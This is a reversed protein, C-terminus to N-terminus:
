KHLKYVRCVCDPLRSLRDLGDYMILQRSFSSLVATCLVAPCLVAIVSLITTPVGVGPM